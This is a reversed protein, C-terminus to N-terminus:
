LHERKMVEKKVYSPTIQQWSVIEVFECLILIVIMLIAIGIIRPTKKMASSLPFILTPKLRM